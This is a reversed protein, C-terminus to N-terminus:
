PGVWKDPKPTTDTQPFPGRSVSVGGSEPRRESQFFYPDRISDTEALMTFAIMGVCHVFALGILWYILRREHNLHMFIAAVLLAKFTAIMLGLWMDARGFGHTGVDLAPITAVAVTAATGCFLLLGVLAYLRLSRRIADSPLPSTHDMARGERIM